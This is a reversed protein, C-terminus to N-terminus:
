RGGLIAGSVAALARERLPQFDLYHRVTEATFRIRAAPHRDLLLRGERLVRFRLPVPASTLSVVDVRDTRLRRTLADTFRGTVTEEDAASVLLVAVDVDSLPGATGRATSGFLYVAVIGPEGAAASVVQNAIATSAAAEAQQARKM